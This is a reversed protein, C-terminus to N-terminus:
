NEIAIEMESINGVNDSVSIIFYKYISTEKTFRYSYNIGNSANIEKTGDFKDHWINDLGNKLIRQKYKVASMNIGSENDTVFLQFKDIKNFSNTFTKYTVTPSTKDVYVNVSCENKNGAKDTITIDATKTTRNFVKTIKADKCGSGSDNCTVTVERDSNTWQTSAGVINSCTPKINDIYKITQTTTATKGTSQNRVVISVTQNSTFTKQNSAQYTKGGDFSYALSGSKNSSASVKLTVSDTWSSSNGSVSSITIKEEVPTSPIVVDNGGNGNNNSDNENSENSSDSTKITIKKSGVNGAKDKVWVYFDGDSIATYRIITEKTLPVETIKDPQVSSKTVMWNTIGSDKDKVTITALKNSISLNFTPLESDIKELKEKYVSSINGDIDRVVMLVEGSSNIQKSNEKQWTKGGDFSYAENHQENKFIADITLTISKTWDKSENGTVNNIVPSNENLKVINFIYTKDKTKIEISTSDKDTLLISKNCGETIVKDGKYTCILKISDNMSEINYNDIDSSFEPSINGGEITVSDINVQKKNAFFYRYGFFGLLGLLLLVILIIIIIVIPGKKNSEEETIDNGSYTPYEYTTNAQYMDNMQESTNQVDNSYIETNVNTSDNNLDENYM